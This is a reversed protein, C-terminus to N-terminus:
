QLVKQFKAFFLDRNKEFHALFDKNNKLRQSSGANHIMAVERDVIVKGGRSIWRACLDVDQWGYHSYDHLCVAYDVVERLVMMGCGTVLKVQPIGAFVDEPKQGYHMHMMRQGPIIGDHHILGKDITRIGAIQAGTLSMATMQHKIANKQVYFADTNGFLIYENDSRHELATNVAKTYGGNESRKIYEVRHNKALKAIYKKIEGIALNEPTADDVVFFTVDIGYLDHELMNKAWRDVLDYRGYVPLIFFLKM